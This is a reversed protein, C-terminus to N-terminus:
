RGGSDAKSPDRNKRASPCKGNFRNLAEFLSRIMDRHNLTDLHNGPLELIGVSPLERRIFRATRVVPVLEDHVNLVVLFRYGYSGVLTRIQPRFDHSVIDNVEKVTRVPNRITKLFLANLSRLGRRDDEGLPLRHSARKLFFRVYSKIVYLFLFRFCHPLFRLSHNFGSPNILVVSRIHALHDTPDESLLRIIEHSAYSHSIIDFQEIGHDKKLQALFHGLAKKREIDPRVHIDTMGGVVREIAAVNTGTEALQSLFYEIDILQTSTGTLVFACDLTRGDSKPIFMGQYRFPRPNGIRYTKVTTAPPFM